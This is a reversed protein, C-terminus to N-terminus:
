EPPLYPKIKKEIETATAKGAITLVDLGNKFAIVTPVKLVGYASVTAPAEDIDVTVLKVDGALDDAVKQLTDLMKKSTENWEAWFGALVVRDNKLVEADFNIDTIKVPEAM